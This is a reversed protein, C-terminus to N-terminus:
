ALEVPLIVDLAHHPRLGEVVVHDVSCFEGSPLGIQFHKQRIDNTERETATPNAAGVFPDPSCAYAEMCSSEELSRLSDPISQGALWAILQGGGSSGSSSGAGEEESAARELASSVQGVIRKQQAYCRLFQGDRYKITFVLSSTKKEPQRPVLPSQNEDVDM